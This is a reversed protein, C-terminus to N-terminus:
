LTELQSSSFSFLSLEYKKVLWLDVSADLLLRLHFEKKDQLYFSM